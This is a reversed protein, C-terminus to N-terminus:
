RPLPELFGNLFLDVNARVWRDRYEPDCIIDVGTAKRIWGAHMVQNMLRDLVLGTLMESDVESRVVGLEKGRELFAVLGGTYEVFARPVVEERSALAYLQRERIIADLTEEVFLDFRSEFDARSRPGRQVARIPGQFVEEAFRDFIADYLGRKSGFYHHIMNMSTGATSCIERVSAGGYGKEAFLTAGAKMLRERAALQTTASSNM